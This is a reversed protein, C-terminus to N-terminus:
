GEGKEERPTRVWARAAARSRDSKIRAILRRLERVKEQAALEQDKITGRLM